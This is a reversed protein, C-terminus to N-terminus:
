PPQGSNTMLDFVSDLGLGKEKVDEGGDIAASTPILYNKGNVQAGHGAYYFLAVGDVPIKDTFEEVAKMM